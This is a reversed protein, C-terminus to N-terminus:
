ASPSPRLPPNWIRGPKAGEASPATPAASQPLSFSREGGFGLLGGLVQFARLDGNTHMLLFLLIIGASFLCFCGDYLNRGRRTRGLSSCLDFLVGIISGLGMCGAFLVMQAQLDQGM